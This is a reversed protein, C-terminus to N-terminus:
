LDIEEEGERLHEIKGFTSMSESTLMKPNEHADEFTSMEQAGQADEAPPLEWVWRGDMGTKRAIVGLRSKARRLTAESIGNANADAKITRQTVPGGSLADRLFEEAERLASANEGDNVAAAAMAEDATITVYGPEWEIAPARITPSVDREVIRLALGFGHAGLNNKVPLFLRRNADEPDKQVLYAARAAAVFAMSGTVRGMADSGGGKNLHSIAVIAVKSEAALEALPALVARVDATKHTDTGALYAMIPDIVVLKVDSKVALVERLTAVDRSLNFGRDRDVEQVSTLVHVRDVNAGAAELRPRITDAIDDEASLMIVSGVPASGEKAPWSGGRTVLAALYATLQSKGLGPHGAILTVKGIAIRSPWLWQIPTAQVSSVPVLKATVTPKVAPRRPTNHRDYSKFLIYDKM